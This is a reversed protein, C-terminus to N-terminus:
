RPFRLAVSRFGWFNVRDDPYSWGRNAARLVNPYDSWSGGRVVRRTGSSPGQPNRTPGSQYYNEDYWDACWEWVNGAMDMLGYPSTNLPFSGVPATYEYGDEANSQYYNARYRGGANSAENGWPWIRGDTGRAAKEWQAETPLQVGAWNCYAVADKWSVNVIPHNDQWGWSPAYPMQRKKENCFKRYQAVTVEYKYIWYGDLYVRRQPKEDDFWSREWYPFRQLLADIQADSTGMIFEGVPIYVMEAGDKPNKAIADQSQEPQVVVEKRNSDQQRQQALEDGPNPLSTGGRSESVPERLSRVWSATLPLFVFFAMVVGLGLATRAMWKGRGALNRAIRWGIFGSAIAILGLFGSVIAAPTVSLRLAFSLLVLALAAWAWWNQPQIPRPVPQPPPQPKPQLPPLPKQPIIIPKLHQGSQVAQQSPFPDRGGLLTTRECWPCDNLHNGYCHQENAQCIKLSEEAEDLAVQWTQADPRKRPNSHGTEFCQVFLRRLEPHLIDFPPAVRTPLYPVRRGTAYPFHGSSIRDELLPPEGLRQFVGAFPHIGEMLLQFILTALGFRDHEVTRDISAFMKGQLEPPTFEPKGVPCRYNNGKQPDCVQFSDTDVLTVLATDAVLINSENVDGIVYGKNHIAGVAAALNRATRHLYLWNFLPRQQRRSKPNYFDIIPRQQSVRPMLFGVFQHQRNTSRLLELPWAISVHGRAAMPDDPPNAIMVALKREHVNTPQHYLKAVSTNDGVIEYIKAEGGTAIISGLTIISKTNERQLRMESEGNTYKRRLTPVYRGAWDINNNQLLNQWDEKQCENRELCGETLKSELVRVAAKVASDAGVEALAASGAGDSVAAVLTGDPLKVWAHADQCPQGSKTHSTGRVSAGLVKWGIRSHSLNKDNLM